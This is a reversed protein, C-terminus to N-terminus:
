PNEQRQRGLEPIIPSQGWVHSRRNSSPISSLDKHKCSLGKVSLAVGAGATSLQFRIVFRM